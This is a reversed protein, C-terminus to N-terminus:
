RRGIRGRQGVLRGDAQSLATDTFPVHDGQHHGRHGLMEEGVHGGGLQSRDGGRDIGLQDRGFPRGDQPRGVWAQDDGRGGQRRVVRHFGIPDGHEGRGGRRVIDQDIQAARSLRWWRQGGVEIAGDGDDERGPGGPRGLAGHEAPALDGEDGLAVDPLLPPLTPVGHGTRSQGM